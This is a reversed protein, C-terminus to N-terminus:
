GVFAILYDEDFEFPLNKTLLQSLSKGGKLFDKM